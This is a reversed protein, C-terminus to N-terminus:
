AGDAGSLSDGFTEALQNSLVEISEFISLMAV